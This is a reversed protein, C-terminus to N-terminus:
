KPEEALEKLRTLFNDKYMVKRNEAHASTERKERLINKESQPWLYIRNMILSVLTRGNVEQVTIM